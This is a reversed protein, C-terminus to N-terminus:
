STLGVESIMEVTAREEAGLDNLPVSSGSLSDISPLGAAAPIGAVLPYENEEAETAYFRQGADSLLYDVFKQAAEAHKASKLIGAGAVNVLTGPDGPTLFKNAVPADPQEAKVQALYYHNVLGLQIDGAAIAEVIPRNADYTHVGNKKLDSLWTKTRDDGFKLRMATVFAQFSANTPAIGLKAAYQPQSYALVDNPLDAPAFNKTNYAVVRVRGSVGVWTGDSARFKAPVRDLTPQPLPALRDAISGLAGADQAFFVDAPSNDGEEEIQAAFEASKGYRVQVKIGTAQEFKPFLPAVVDEERGSYVTLSNASDGSGSGCASLATSALVVALAILRSPRM